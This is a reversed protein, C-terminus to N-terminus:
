EYLGYPCFVYRDDWDGPAGTELVPNSESKDWVLGDDSIAYGIRIYFVSDIYGLGAYWMEYKELRHIIFPHYVGSSDWAGSTGTLVPPNNFVGPTDTADGWNIGDLSEAYGISKGAASTGSFWMKYTSDEYIVFPYEIRAGATMWSIQTSAIVPNDPYKEWNIGDPSTAYGIGYNISAAPNLPNQMAGLYWGKYGDSEKLVFMNTAERSDWSGVPGVAMVPNIAGKTWDLGNSSTAFGVQWAVSGSLCCGGYYGYYLSKSVKVPHICSAHQDDFENIAGLALIPEISAKLWKIGDFSVAYGARESATTPSWAGYLLTYTSTTEGRTIDYFKGKKCSLCGVGCEITGGIIDKRTIQDICAEECEPCSASIGTVLKNNCSATAQKCLAANASTSGISFTGSVFLVVIASIGLVAAIIILYELAGQGRM